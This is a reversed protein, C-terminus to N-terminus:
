RGPLPGPEGILTFPAWFAPLAHRGGPEDLIALSAQRLAEARDLDPQKAQRKLTDPILTSTVHDDVPWHSVLVSVAGAFFFARSLGSLGQAEPADPSATNCASLLTWDANIKLGTVESALLWEDAPKDGKALALAPQALGADGAVLGHTAFELVKVRALRGDANRAMLQAKSADADTLVSTAPAGLASALALAEVRTGPLRPLSLAGNVVTAGRVYYEMGRPSAAAGATAAARNGFDPDALALLKDPTAPRDKVMLQRLTRLSSIAPLLAVAKDRLLWRTAQLAAPDNDGGQPPQTVLLGPPLSWMPGSPAILLTHKPGIVAQIKPDGLLAQHLAYATERDFGSWNPDRAVLLPGRAPAMGRAYARPNIQRRLREVKAKIEDGSLGIRAWAFGERSVAFVLGPEKGSPIMWLVLAEDPRLLTAAGQRGQLEAGSVPQPSRFDWYHPSRTKLKETLAAIESEVTKRAVELAATRAAGDAGSGGAATAFDTDLKDHALLDAEYKAALDGAREQRAAILASSRAM